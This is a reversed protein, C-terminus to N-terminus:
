ELALKLNDICSQSVAGNLLFDCICKHTLFFYDYSFLTIFGAELDECFHKDKAMKVCELFNEDFTTKNYVDILKETKLKFDLSVGITEVEASSFGLAKLLEVQYILESFEEFEEVDDLDFKEQL